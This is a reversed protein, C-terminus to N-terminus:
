FKEKQRAVGTDFGARAVALHGVVSAVRLKAAVVLRAGTLQGVFVQAEPGVADCFPKLDTVVAAVAFRFSHLSSM